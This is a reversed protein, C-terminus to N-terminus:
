RRMHTPVLDCWARQFGEVDGNSVSHLLTVYMQERNLNNKIKTKERNSHDLRGSPGVNEQQRESREKRFIKTMDFILFM